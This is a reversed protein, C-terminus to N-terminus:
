IYDEVRLRDPVQEVAARELWYRGVWDKRVAEAPIPSEGGSLAEKAWTHVTQVHAGVIEAAESASVEGSRRANKAYNRAM